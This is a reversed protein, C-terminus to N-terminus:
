FTLLITFLLGGRTGLLSSTERISSYNDNTTTSVENKQIYDEVTRGRIFRGSLNRWVSRMTM